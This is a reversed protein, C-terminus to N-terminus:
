VSVGFSNQILDTKILPIIFSFTAGKGDKNNEASMTGGHSVIINKSIYLGLGTGQFSRTSFKTFLHPLIEESIGSGTDKIIIEAYRYGNPGDGKSIKLTIKILGDKEIFKIANDLLNSIVQVIREKDAYVLADPGRIEKQLAYHLKIHRKHSHSKKLERTYDKIVTILLDNLNFNEQQLLLKDSEIRTVDLINKILVNLRKANRHIAEISEDKNIDYKLLSAFTM